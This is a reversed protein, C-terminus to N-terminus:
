NSQGTSPRIKSIKKGIINLQVQQRAFNSSQGRAECTYTGADASKDVPDITLSGNFQVRQRANLPLRRGDSSPCFFQFFSLCFSSRTAGKEWVIAEIPWGAVPCPLELRKGGVAAVNGMPRVYPPGFVHLPATHDVKGM